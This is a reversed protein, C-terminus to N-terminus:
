NGFKNVIKTVKEDKIVPLQTLLVNNLCFSFNYNQEEINSLYAQLLFYELLAWDTECYQKLSPYSLSNMLSKCM